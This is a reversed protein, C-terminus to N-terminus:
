LFKVVHRAVGEPLGVLSEALSRDSGARVAAAGGGAADMAVPPLESGHAPAAHRWRLLLLPRRRRWLREKPAADLLRVISEERGPIGRDTIRDEETVFDGVLDRPTRDDADVTLESAGLELLRRVAEPRLCACAEHLATRRSISGGAELDAGGGVLISIPEPRGLTAAVHLPTRGANDRAMVDGGAGLLVRLSEGSGGAAAAHLPTQKMADVCFIDAGHLILLEVVHVHGYAAALHVASSRFHDRADVTVRKKLSVARVLVHGESSAQWELRPREDLVGSGGGGGGLASAEGEGDDLLFGAVAAHGAVAALHLPTRGEADRAHRLAGGALLQKVAPLNGESSEELLGAGLFKLWAERSANQHKDAVLVSLDRGPRSGHTIWADLKPLPERPAEHDVTADKSRTGCSGALAAGMM